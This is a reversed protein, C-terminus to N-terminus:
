VDLKVTTIVYAERAGCSTPHWRGRGRSSWLERGTEDNFM